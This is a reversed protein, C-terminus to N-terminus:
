HDADRAFLSLQTGPQYIRGARLTMARLRVRRTWAGELLAPLRPLVDDDVCTPEPLDLSFRSEARDTYRLELTIRRLEVGAARVAAMLRETMGRLAALLLPEQWADEAFEIRETWGEEVSKRRAGVPEDAIGQAQRILPLARRGLVAGLAQVPMQALQGIRRVGALELAELAERNLGLLAAVPLPALFDRERGAPVVLHGSPKGARAALRSVLKNSAIGTSISVHLWRRVTQQIREMVARGGGQIRETGTLDLWAAGVSAPEVLPTAEHCLWLIEDFFREYLEFHAPVVVLEPVARRARGVSWGPRIGYRRAEPSASLVVGRREGGVVVARGRLRRDAAQEISAFFRDGDWHAVTRQM